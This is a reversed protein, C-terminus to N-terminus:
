RRQKVPAGQREPPHTRGGVVPLKYLKERNTKPNHTGQGRGPCMRRECNKTYLQNLCIIAFGGREEPSARGHVKAPPPGKRPLRGPIRLLTDTDTDAETDTDTGM